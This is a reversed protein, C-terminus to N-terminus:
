MGLNAGNVLSAIDLIELSNVFKLIDLTVIKFKMDKTQCREKIHQRRCSSKYRCYGYKNFTCVNQQAM